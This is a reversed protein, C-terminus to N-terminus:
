ADPQANDANPIVYNIGTIQEGKSTMDTETKEKYGHNSSLMLKAITANYQGSLGKATLRDHQETRIKDLAHMFDPYKQEWEYMVRKSVGIYMAFGELTPLKVNLRNSEDYEDERIMLFEEARDCFTPDYESPRGTRM